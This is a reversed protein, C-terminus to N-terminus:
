GTLAARLLSLGQRIGTLDVAGYGLVLGTRTPPGLFYRSLTHVKVNDASLAQAVEDLDLGARAVAAVHMGYSSPIPDLWQDFDRQLCSVLLRRRQRYTERMKRVHNTLLGESIFGAVGM